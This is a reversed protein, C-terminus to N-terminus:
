FHAIRYPGLFGLGSLMPVLFPLTRLYGGLDVLVRADLALLTGDAALGATAHWRQERSQDVAVLHESRDEIWRVPRGSRISAIPVLLDEPHFEGRVGFGGGVDVARIWVADPELGLAQALADRHYHPMKAPGWVLLSRSSPDFAALLGRGELPIAGHRHLSLQESVVIEAVGLAEDVDGTRFDLTHILNGLGEFLEPADDALASEVDSVAPLMDIEAEVLQAADEAVYRSEAVVVAIPEGVYRVRAGALPFQLLPELGPPPPFRAPLPALYAGLDGAAFADVVGPVARAADLTIGRVIGHAVVSRVIVAELVNAMEVDGVYQAAGALLR